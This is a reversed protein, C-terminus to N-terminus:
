SVRRFCGSSRHLHIAERIFLGSVFITPPRKPIGPAPQNALFFVLSSTPDKFRWGTVTFDPYVAKEAAEFSLEDALAKKDFDVPVAKTLKATGLMEPFMAAQVCAAGIVILGAALKM